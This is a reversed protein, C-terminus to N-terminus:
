KKKDNHINVWEISAEYTKEQKEFGIFKRNTDICACASNALGCFPDCVIDDEDTFLEICKTPLAIPFAVVQINKYKNDIKMLAQKIMKNVGNNSIEWLNNDKHRRSQNIKFSDKSKVLIFIPEYVRSFNRIEGIYQFNSKKWAVQEKVIFGQKIFLNLIKINLDPSNNNYSMNFCIVGNDKLSRYAEKSFEDFLKLAEKESLNDKFDLEPYNRKDDMNYPPSTVILQISKDPIQKLGILCDENVLTIRSTLAKSRLKNSENLDLTTNHQYKKSIEM